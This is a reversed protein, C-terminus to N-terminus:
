NVFLASNVNNSSKTNFYMQDVQPINDFCEAIIIDVSQVQQVLNLVVFDLGANLVHVDLQVLTQCEILVDVHFRLRM